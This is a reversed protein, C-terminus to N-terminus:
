NLEMIRLKLNRKIQIGLHYIEIEGMDFMDFEVSLLVKTQPLIKKHENTVIIFDNVIPRHGCDISGIKQCVCKQKGIESLVM